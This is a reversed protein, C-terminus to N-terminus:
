ELPMDDQKLCRLQYRSLIQNSQPKTYAAFKEFIIKKLKFQDADNEWMATNYIELEKDGDWLLLLRVKQGETKNLLPGDFILVANKSSFSSIFRKHIDGPTSWDMLPIM